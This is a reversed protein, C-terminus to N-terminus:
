KRVIKTFDLMGKLRNLSKSVKTKISKKIRSCLDQNLIKNLEHIEIEFGCANRHGGGGMAKAVISVDPLTDLSRLGFYVKTNDIVFYMMAPTNLQTCIGNGVESMNDNLNLLKFDIGKFNFDPVHKLKKCIKDVKRDVQVTLVRGVELIRDRMEFINADMQKCLRTVYLNFEIPDNKCDHALYTLGENFERSEPLKWLWLDRDRIYDFFTDMYGDKLPMYSSLAKKTLSAGCEEVDYVYKVIKSTDDKYKHVLNFIGETATKHHDIICLVKVRQAIVDLLEYSLSFDVFFVIDKEGGETFNTNKGYQLAHYNIKFHNRDCVGGLKEFLSAAALGDMCDKHYVVHIVRCDIKNIIIKITVESNSDSSVILQQGCCVFTEAFLNLCYSKLYKDTFKFLLTETGIDNVKYMCCKYELTESIGKEKFLDILQDKYDKYKEPMESSISISKNIHKLIQGFNLDHEPKVINSM